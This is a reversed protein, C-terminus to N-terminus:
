ANKTAPLGLLPLSLTENQGIPVSLMLKHAFQIQSCYMIKRWTSGISGILGTGGGGPLKLRPRLLALM